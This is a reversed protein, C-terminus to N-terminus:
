NTSCAPAPREVSPLYQKWEAATLDRGARTCAAARWADLQLDFLQSGAAGPLVLTRGDPSFEARGFGEPVGVFTGVKARAELDVLYFSKALDGVVAYRDDAGFSIGALGQGSVDIPDALSKFTTGDRLEVTGNLGTIALV